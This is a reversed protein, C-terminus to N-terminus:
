KRAEVDAKQNATIDNSLTNNRCRTLLRREETTRPRVELTDNTNWNHMGTSQNIKYGGPRFWAVHEDPKPIDQLQRELMEPSQMRKITRLQVQDRCKVQIM